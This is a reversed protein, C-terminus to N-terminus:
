VLSKRIERFDYERLGNDQEQLKEIEKWFLNRTVNVYEPAPKGFLGQYFSNIVEVSDFVRVLPGEYSSLWVVVAKERDKTVHVLYIKIDVKNWMKEGKELFM